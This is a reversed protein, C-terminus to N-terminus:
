AADPGGLGNWPWKKLLRYTDLAHFFVDKGYELEEPTWEKIYVADQRDTPIIVNMQRTPEYPVLERYAAQQWLWEDYARYKGGKTDQTKWDIITLDGDMDGYFDITGAYGLFRNTFTREAAGHLHVLLEKVSEFVWWARESAEAEKGNLIEAIIAHVETGLDAAEGMDSHYEENVRRIFEEDSEDDHRPTMLMYQGFQDIKWNILGQPTPLANAIITTVSPYLDLKKADRVTTTRMGGKSKNPVQHVPYGHADYFHASSPRLKLLEM